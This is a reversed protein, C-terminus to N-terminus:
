FHVTDFVAYVSCLCQTFVAYLHMYVAYFHTYVAYFHM